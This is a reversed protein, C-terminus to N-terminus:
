ITSDVAYNKAMVMAAKLSSAHISFRTSRNFELDFPGDVTHGRELSEENFRYLLRGTIVDLVRCYIHSKWYNKNSRNRKETEPIYFSGVSSM